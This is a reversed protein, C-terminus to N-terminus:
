SITNKWNLEGLFSEKGIPVGASRLIAYVTTLHFYFNPLAFSLFYDKGSLEKGPYWPFSVKKSEFQEFDNKKFSHLYNLTRDLRAELEGWTKETDEFKPMEKGSLRSAAGKANDTVMQIQRILAFMDPALKMDLFLNVDFKRQEAFEKTKALIGRLAQLNKGYQGIIMEYVLDHNSSMSM